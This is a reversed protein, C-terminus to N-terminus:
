EGLLKLGYTAKLDAIWESGAAPLEYRAAAEARREPSFTGAAIMEGLERFYNEFGAPSIIELLRTPQDTPNWFTHAVNRPKVIYTGPGGEVTADGIRAGVIGEFV